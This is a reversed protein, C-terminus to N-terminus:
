AQDFEWGDFPNGEAGCLINTDRSKVKLDRVMQRCRAYTDAFAHRAFYDQYQKMVFGGLIVLAALIPFLCAVAQKLACNTGAMIATVLFPTVLTATMLMTSLNIRWKIKREEFSCMSHLCALPDRQASEEACPGEHMAALSETAHRGDNSMDVQLAILGASAVATATMFFAALLIWPWWM